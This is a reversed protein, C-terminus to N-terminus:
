VHARGIEKGVLLASLRLAIEETNQCQGMKSKFQKEDMVKSAIHLFMEASEQLSSKKGETKVESDMFFRHEATEGTGQKEFSMVISDYGDSKKIGTIKVNDHVGPQIYKSGSSTTEVKQFDLM